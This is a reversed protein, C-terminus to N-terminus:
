LLHYLLRDARVSRVCGHPLLGGSHSVYARPRVLKEPSASSANARRPQDDAAGRQTGFRGRALHWGRRAAELVANPSSQRRQGAGRLESFFAALGACGAIHAFTWSRKLARLEKLLPRQLQLMYASSM